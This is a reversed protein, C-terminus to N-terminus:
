GIKIHSKKMVDSPAFLRGEGNSIRISFTELGKFWPSKKSEVKLDVFRVLYRPISNQM